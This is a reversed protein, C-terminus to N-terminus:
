PKIQANGSTTVIASVVQGSAVKIRVEQGEAADNMALGETGISYGNGILQLKTTQGQRVSYPVRLMDQRLVQGAGVSFKLTKGIAQAQDTLIGPQGLEGNQLSFDAASLLVGQALPKNTVLQDVSVKINTQLFISWVPKGNCRVGISTKGQLKAGVPIFAELVPCNPLSIRHDIETVSISVKSPLTRTQEQAFALAADRIAAHSQQPVSWAQHPVAFCLLLLFIQPNKM